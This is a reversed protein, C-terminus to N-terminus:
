RAAGRCSASWQAAARPLGIRLLRRRRSWGGQVIWGALEALEGSGAQRVGVACSQLALRGMSWTGLMCTRCSRCGAAEVRYSCVVRLEMPVVAALSAEVLVVLLVELGGQCRLVVLLVVLWLVVLLVALGGQGYRVVLLVRLVAPGVHHRQVKLRSGQCGAGKM